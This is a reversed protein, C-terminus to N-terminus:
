DLRSVWDAGKTSLALSSSARREASTKSVEKDVQELMRAYFHCYNALRM